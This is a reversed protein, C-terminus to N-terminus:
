REYAAIKAKYAAVEQALAKCVAQSENLKASLSVRIGRMMAMVGALQGTLAGQMVEQERALAAERAEAAGLQAQV